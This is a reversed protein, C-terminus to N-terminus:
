IQYNGAEVERERESLVETVPVKPTEEKIEAFPPSVTAFPCVRVANPMTVRPSPLSVNATSEASNSTSEVVPAIVMFSSPFRPFMFMSPVVRSM